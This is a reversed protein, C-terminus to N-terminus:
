PRPAALDATVTPGTKALTMRNDTRSCSVTVFGDAADIRVTRVDDTGVLIVPEEGLDEAVEGIISLCEEFPVTAVRMGSADAQAGSVALLALSGIVLSVLRPSM